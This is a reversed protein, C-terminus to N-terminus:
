RFITVTVLSRIQKFVHTFVIAIMKLTEPIWFLFQPQKQERELNLCGDIQLIHQSEITQLVSVPQM